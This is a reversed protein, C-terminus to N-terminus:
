QAGSRGLSALMSGAVVLVAGAYALGNIDSAEFGAPWLRVAAAMAAITILPALSIVASVKAANWHHIAETFAGYAIVTNLCCFALAGLQVASLGEFSAPEVGPSLLIAGGGYIAMTLQRSNMGRLLTKQLLGYVGWSLAAMLIMLVGLTYDGFSAFIDDLRDNFFLLLGGFLLLAGVCEQRGFSERYILVSGSMLIFPALQILVQATEPNLLHLGNLYLVFNGTLAAIAVALLLRHRGDLAAWSPMDGQRWLLGLVLLAAVLFRIWTLSFPDMSDLLLKLFVPLLGWMFATTLSLFFGYWHRVEAM